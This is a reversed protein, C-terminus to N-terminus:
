EEMLKIAKRKTPYYIRAQFHDCTVELSSSLWENGFRDCEELYSKYDAIAEKLTVGSIGHAISCPIGTNIYYTVNM